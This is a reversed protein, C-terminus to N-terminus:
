LECQPTRCSNICLRCDALTGLDSYCEWDCNREFFCASNYWRGAATYKYDYLCELTNNPDYVEGHGFGEGVGKWRGSFGRLMYKQFIFFGGLVFLILFIYEFASQGKRKNKRLFM